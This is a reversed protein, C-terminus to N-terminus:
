RYRLEVIRMVSVTLVTKLYFFKIKVSMKVFFNDLTVFCNSRHLIEVM